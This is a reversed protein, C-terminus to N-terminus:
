TRYTYSVQFLTPKPSGWFVTLAVGSPGTIAVEIYGSAPVTGASSSISV